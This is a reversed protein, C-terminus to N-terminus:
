KKLNKYSLKTVTTEKMKRFDNAKKFDDTWNYANLLFKKASNFHGTFYTDTLEVIWKMLEAEVDVNTDDIDDYKTYPTSLQFTILTILVFRLIM